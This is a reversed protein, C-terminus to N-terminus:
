ARVQTSPRRHIIDWAVIGKGGTLGRSNLDAGKTLLLEVVETHGERVANALPTDGNM